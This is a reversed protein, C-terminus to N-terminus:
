LTNMAYGKGRFGGEEYAFECESLGCYFSEEQGIWVIVMSSGFSCELDIPIQVLRVNYTVLKLTTAVLFHLRPCQGELDTKLKQM